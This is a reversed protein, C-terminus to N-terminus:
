KQLQKTGTPTPESYDVTGRVSEPDASSRNIFHSKFEPQVTLLSQKIEVSDRPAAKSQKSWVFILGIIMLFGIVLIIIWIIEVKNVDDEDYTFSLQIVFVFNM